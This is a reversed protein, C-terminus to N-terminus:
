ASSTMEYCVWRRFNAGSPVASREEKGGFDRAQWSEAKFVSLAAQWPSM